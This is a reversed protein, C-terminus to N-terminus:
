KPCGYKEIWANIAKLEAQGTALNIRRASRVPHTGTAQKGDKEVTVTLINNKDIVVNVTRPASTKSIKCDVVSTKTKSAPAASNLAAIEEAIMEKLLNKTIKM